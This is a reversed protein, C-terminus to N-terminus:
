MGTRSRCGRRWRGRWGCRRRNGRGGCRRRLSRAVDGPEDRVLVLRVHLGPGWVQLGFRVSELGMALESEAALVTVGDRPADREALGM